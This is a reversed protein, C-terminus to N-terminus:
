SETEQELEARIKARIIVTAYRDFIHTFERRHIDIKAVKILPIVDQFDAGREVRAHGKLAHLKM